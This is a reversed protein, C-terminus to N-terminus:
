HKFHRIGTLFMNISLERAKEIVEKDRISGGPQIINKIGYKGAIEISDSFPFFASSALTAGKLIEKNEVRSIAFKLADVRSTFGTGMTILQQNKVICIANSKLHKVIIFSFELDRKTNEDVEEGSVQEYKSEEKWLVSDEDQVLFGGDLMMINFRRKPFRKQKLVRLNKKKKFIELAEETFDPAIVIEFFSKVIEEATEKDLKVSFGIIGGFASLPDGELAKLFAQKPTKGIAAGCSNNHKTIACFVKDKFEEVLAMTEYFDRINNYSLKKGQVQEIGKIYSAPPIYYLSASQHPNEGYRLEQLKRGGVIFLEREVPNKKNLYNFILSDYYSTLLFAKAALERRSELDINGGSKEYENMFAEYDRPETLIIINKFNKASARVMSPGGIDINELMSDLELNEEIVREFPYFNVAVLEINPIEHKEREEEDKGKRFLIGGFVKPHLTKVRGDFIEPFNTISSVETIKIGKENLFKATGGTSLIEFGRKVLFSALKDIDTKDFVSLLAYKKM